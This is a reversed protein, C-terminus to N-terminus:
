NFIQWIPLMLQRESASRAERKRSVGGDSPASMWMSGTIPIAANGAAVSMPNAESVGQRAVPWLSVRAPASPDAPTWQVGAHTRNGAGRAYSFRGWRQPREDVHLWHHSDGRQRRCRENPESREGRATGSARCAREPEIGQVERMRSVGGNSPASMWMSGTIPISGMVVPNCPRHEVMSGCQRAVDHYRM